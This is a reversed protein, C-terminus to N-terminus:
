SLVSSLCKMRPECTPCPGCQAPHSRMCTPKEGRHRDECDQGLHIHHVIRIPSRSSLGCSWSNRKPWVDPLIAYFSVAQSRCRITAGVTTRKPSAIIFGKGISVMAGATRPGSDAPMSNRGLLEIRDRVIVVLEAVLQDPSHQDHRWYGSFRLGRRVVLQARYQPFIPVFIRLTPDDIFCQGLAIDPCRAAPSSGVAHDPRPEPAARVGSHVDGRDGDLKDRGRAPVPRPIIHLLATLVLLRPDDLMPDDVAEVPVHSDEAM